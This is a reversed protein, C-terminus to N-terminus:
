MKVPINSVSYHYLLVGRQSTQLEQGTDVAYYGWIQDIARIRLWKLGACVRGGSHRLRWKMIVVGGVVLFELTAEDEPVGL